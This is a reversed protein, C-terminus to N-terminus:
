GAARVSLRPQCPISRTTNGPISHFQVGSPCPFLFRVNPHWFHVQAALWQMPRTQLDEGALHIATTSGSGGSTGHRGKGGNREAWRPVRADANNRQCQDIQMKRPPAKTAGRLLHGFRGEQSPGADQAAGLLRLLQKNSAEPSKRRFAAWRTRCKSESSCQGETRSAKTSKWVQNPRKQQDSDLRWADSAHQSERLYEICGDPAVESRGTIQRDTVPAQRVLRHYRRRIMASFQIQTKTQLTDAGTLRIESSM